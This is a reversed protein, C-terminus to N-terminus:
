DGAKDVLTDILQDIKSEFGLPEEYYPLDIKTYSQRRAGPIPRPLEGQIPRWFLLAQWNLALVVETRSFVNEYPNRPVIRYERGRGQEDEFEHKYQDMRAGPQPAIEAKLWTGYPLPDELLLVNFAESYRPTILEVIGWLLVDEPPEAQQPSIFNREVTDAILTALEIVLQTRAHPPLGELPFSVVCRQPSDKSETQEFYLAQRGLDENIGDVRQKVHGFIESVELNLAFLRQEAKKRKEEELRQKELTRTQAADLQAAVKRSLGATADGKPQQPLRAEIVDLEATIEDWSSFRKITRKELMRAVLSALRDSLNSVIETIRRPTTYLHAHKLEPDTGVFPRQLTAMEYFVVGM